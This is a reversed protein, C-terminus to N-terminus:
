SKSHPLLCPPLTLHILEIITVTPSVPPTFIQRDDYCWLACAESEGLVRVGGLLSVICILIRTKFASLWAPHFSITFGGLHLSKLKVGSINRTGGPYKAPLRVLWQYSSYLAPFWIQNIQDYFELLEFISQNIKLNRAHYM